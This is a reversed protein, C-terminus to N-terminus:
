LSNDFLELEAEMPATLEDNFEYFACFEGLGSLENM